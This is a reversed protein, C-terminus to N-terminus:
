VLSLDRIKLEIKKKDKWENLEVAYVIDIINGTALKQKKVHNFLIGKFIDGDKELLMQMHDHAKGVTNLQVVKVNKTIFVPSPNGMGFPALKNILDYLELTIQGFEIELDIKIEKQFFEPKIKKAHIFISEKFSQLRSTELSFGAAMPHGGAELLFESSQRILDIINVGSISRASAKSIKDGISVAIAPKYFEEVLRSAILGIIGQEYHTSEVFIINETWNEKKIKETADRASDFTADQRTKNVVTLAKALRIARNKDTTCLLRLSDLAHSIRGAANLRPAIIHGIHYTDIENKRVKSEDILAVLGPRDTNRLYKLGFKLLTRNSAQLPVLDAVTALAVLGLHDEHQSIQFEESIKQSFLYAVAAGCLSTTHIISDAPPNKKNKTHHDTIIVSIGLGEAFEVPDHAVIGNDVTIILGIDKVLAQLNQIGKVSLGYGEDMRHPIYPHVNKYFSFITEWLIATGTIGDVDYDGYVVIAKKSEITKKILQIGKEVENENIGVSQLSVTELKPNLFEEIEKKEYIGRNNLLIKIIDELELPEQKENM